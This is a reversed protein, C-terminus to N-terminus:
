LTISLSSIFIGWDETASKKPILAVFTSNIAGSIVGREKSEEVVNLLDLDMVDICDLFVEMTWGDPVLIKSRPSSIIAGKLELLMIPHFIEDGEAKSFIRLFEKIVKIEDRVSISCNERYYSDFHSHVM